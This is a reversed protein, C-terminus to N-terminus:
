WRIITGVLSIFKNIDVGPCCDCVLTPWPLDLHENVQNLVQNSHCTISIWSLNGKEGKIRLAGPPVTIMVGRELLQSTILGM